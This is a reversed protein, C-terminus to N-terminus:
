KAKAEKKTKKELNKKVALAQLALGTKSFLAQNFWVNGIPLNKQKLYKLGEVTAWTLGEVNIWGPEFYCIGKINGAIAIEFLSELYRQQGLATYGPLGSKPPYKKKTVITVEDGDDYPYSTEIIFREYPYYTAIFLLTAELESLEGHFYPYYSLGLADFKFLRPEMEHLFEACAEPNGGDSIHIMIKTTPSTERIAKIAANLLIALCDYGNASPKKGKFVKAFPWLIGRNVENGVQIYDLFLNESTFANVVEKTYEYVKYELDAFDLKTWEKPLVQNNATAWFDSYHINLLLKFGATVARKALRLATELNNHGGGYSVGKNTAPNVFLRIRALNFGNSKLIKFLDEKEGKTNSFTGGLEEVTLLSSVDAGYIFDKKM